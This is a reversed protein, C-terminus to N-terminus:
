ADEGKGLSKLYEKFEWQTELMKAGCGGCYDDIIEWKGCNACIGHYLGNVLRDPEEWYSVLTNEGIAKRM